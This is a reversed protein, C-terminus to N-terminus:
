LMQKAKETNTIYKDNNGGVCVYVGTGQDLSRCEFNTLHLIGILFIFLYIKGAIVTWVVNNHFILM